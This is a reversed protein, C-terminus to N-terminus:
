NKGNADTSKSNIDFSPQVETFLAGAVESDDTNLADSFSSTNVVEKFMSNLRPPSTPPPPPPTERNGDYSEDDSEYNQGAYYMEWM